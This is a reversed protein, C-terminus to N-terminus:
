KQMELYVSLLGGSWFRGLLARKLWFYGLLRLDRLGERFDAKEASM